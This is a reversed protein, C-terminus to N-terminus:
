MTWPEAHVDVEDSWRRHLAFIENVVDAPLPQVDRSAALLEDLNERRAASGVTSVVQPTSHAFRVCFEAWSAIGSSDFIPTM